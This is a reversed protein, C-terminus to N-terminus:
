NNLRNLIIRGASDRAMFAFDYARWRLASEKNNKNCGSLKMVSDIAICAEFYYQALTDESNVECWAWVKSLSKNSLSVHNNKEKTNM